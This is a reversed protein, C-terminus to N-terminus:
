RRGNGLCEKDHSGIVSTRTAGRARQNTFSRDQAVALFALLDSFTERRM